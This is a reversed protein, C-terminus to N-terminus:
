SVDSLNDPIKKYTYRNQQNNYEDNEKYCAKMTAMYDYGMSECYRKNEKFDDYDGYLVVLCFISFIIGIVGMWTTLNNTM